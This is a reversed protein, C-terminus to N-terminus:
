VLEVLLQKYDDILNLTCKRERLEFLIKILNIVFKRDEGNM